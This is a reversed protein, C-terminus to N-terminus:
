PIIPERAEPQRQQWSATSNSSCIGFGNRILDLSNYKGREIGPLDIDVLQYALKDYIVRCEYTDFQITPLPWQTRQIHAFLLLQRLYHGDSRIGIWIFLWKRSAIAKVMARGRGSMKHTVVAAVYRQADKSITFEISNHPNWQETSAHVLLFVM